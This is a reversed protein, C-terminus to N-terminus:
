DGSSVCVVSDSVEGEIWHIRNSRVCFQCKEWQGTYKIEGCVDSQCKERQGTYKIEGCM